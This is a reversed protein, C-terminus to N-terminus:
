EDDDEELEEDQKLNGNADLEGFGDESYNSSLYHTNKLKFRQMELETLPEEGMLALRANLLEAKQHQLEKKHDKQLQEFKEQILKKQADRKKNFRSMLVGSIIAVVIGLFALAPPIVPIIMCLFVVAISAFLGMGCYMGMDENKKYIPDNKIEEECNKKLDELTADEKRYSCFIQPSKETTFQRAFHTKGDFNFATKFRRVAFVTAETNLVKRQMRLNRIHDGPMESEVEIGPKIAGRETVYHLDAATPEAFVVKSLIEPDSVPSGNLAVETEEYGFGACKCAIIEDMDGLDVTDDNSLETFGAGKKTASGNYPQWDTVTRTKVVNRTITKQLDKDYVREEDIYQEQRDYGIEASYTFEYDSTQGLIQYTSEYVESFEISDISVPADIASYIEILSDRVFSEKTNCGEVLFKSINENM